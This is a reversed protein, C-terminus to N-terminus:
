HPSGPHSGPPGGFRDWNDRNEKDPKVKLGQKFAFGIFGGLVILCIPALVWDPM